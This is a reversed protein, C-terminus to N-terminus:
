YRNWVTSPSDKVDQWNYNKKPIQWSPGYVFELYERAKLPIKIELGHFEIKKINQFLDVPATYGSRKYFLGIKIFLKKLVVTPKQAFSFIKILKQFKGDYKDANSIANVLKMCINRPVLWEVYAMERKNSKLKIRQYFNVDVIRGGDKIFYIVDNKVMFAEKTKFNAKSLLDTIYKKEVVGSWVAIDIDHDWEILKNDRIIGLLTGQCLWYPINNENLLNIVTIFNPDLTSKATM